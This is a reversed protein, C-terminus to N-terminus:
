WVNEHMVRSTGVITSDQYAENIVQFKLTAGDAGKKKDPHWKVKLM